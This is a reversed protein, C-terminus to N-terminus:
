VKKHIIWIGRGETNFTVYKSEYELIAGTNLTLSMNFEEGIVIFVAGDDVPNIQIDKVVTTDGNFIMVGGIYKSSDILINSLGAIRRGNPLTIAEDDSCNRTELKYEPMDYAGIIYPISGGGVYISSEISAYTKDVNTSDIQAEFNM